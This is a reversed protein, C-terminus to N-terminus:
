RLSILGTLGIDFQYCQLNSIKTCKVNIKPLCQSHILNPGGFNSIRLWHIRNLVFEYLATPFDAPWNLAFLHHFDDVVIPVIEDVLQDYNGLSRLISNLM